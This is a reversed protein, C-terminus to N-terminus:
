CVELSPKRVRAAPRYTWTDRPQLQHVVEGIRINMAAGRELTATVAAPNAGIRIEVTRGRWQVRFRLLQWSPPLHPDLRLGDAVMSLGGFGFVAAQWIGGLSGM